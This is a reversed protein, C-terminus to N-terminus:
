IYPNPLHKQQRIGIKQKHSSPLLSIAQLFWNEGGVMYAEPVLSLDNPKADVAKLLLGTVLVLVSMMSQEQSGSGKRCAAM